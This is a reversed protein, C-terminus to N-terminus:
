LDAKSATETDRPDIVIVKLGNQKLDAIGRMEPMGSAGPNHGWLVILRSNALDIEFPCWGYIATEIMFTPIWCLHANHFGNPSGFLNMFRRRAWDNARLTGGATAVTEAGYEEKLSVLRASIEDLAQDWSVREWQGSGRAGVRKLPVNIRAPHNLHQLAINGRACLGGRSVPHEPDGEIAIVKGDKVYALVGCNQHCFFCCSKRVASAERKLDEKSSM